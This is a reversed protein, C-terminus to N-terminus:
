SYNIINMQIKINKYCNNKYYYKETNQVNQLAYLYNLNLDIKVCKSETKSKKNLFKIHLVISCFFINSIITPM